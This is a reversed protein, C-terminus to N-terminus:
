KGTRVDAPQYTVQGEDDTQTVEIKITEGDSMKVDCEFKDDKKATVDGPCDVSGVKLGQKTLTDKIQPEISDTELTKECGALAVVAVLAAASFFIKTLM